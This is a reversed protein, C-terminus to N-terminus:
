WGLFKVILFKGMRQWAGQKDVVFGWTGIKAVAMLSSQRDQALWLNIRRKGGAWIECGSFRVCTSSTKSSIKTRLDVRGGTSSGCGGGLGPDQARIIEKM